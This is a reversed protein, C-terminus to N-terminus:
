CMTLGGNVSITQGTIYAAEDGALFVVLAAVDAPRGLRRMPIGRALGEYLREDYAKVQALLDTDTPGPCVCNVAIGSRAVERALTKTFAIIGGKTASYVAEGTSGVRGADSGINIIRGSGRALMSDLVARCCILTGKLNVALLRDWTEEKSEVFREIRDIGANNVLVDVAGLAAAVGDLAAAVSRSDSVDTGFAAARAGGRELAAATARAAAEDIDCVAVAAGAAALARCIEAGIGRAGGTVLATRGQLAM